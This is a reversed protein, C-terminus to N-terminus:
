SGAQSLAITAGVGNRIMVARDNRHGGAYCLTAARSNTARSNTATCDDTAAANAAASVHGHTATCDDTAAANAAAFADVDACTNADTDAVRDAPDAGDAHAHQNPLHDSQDPFRAARQALHAAAYAARVATTADSRDGAPRAGDDDPHRGAPSYHHHDAWGAHATCTGIGTYPAGSDADRDPHESRGPAYRGAHGYCRAEAASCAVCGGAGSRL